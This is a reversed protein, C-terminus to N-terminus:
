LGINMNINSAQSENNNIYNDLPMEVLMLFRQEQRKIKLLIYNFELTAKKYASIIIVLVIDFSIVTFKIVVMIDFSGM